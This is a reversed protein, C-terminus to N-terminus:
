PVLIYTKVASLVILLILQLRTFEMRSLKLHWIEGDIKSKLRFIIVPCIVKKFKCL